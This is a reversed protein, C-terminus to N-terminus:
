AALPFRSITAHSLQFQRRFIRSAEFDGILRFEPVLQRQDTAQQFARESDSFYAHAKPARSGRRSSLQEGAELHLRKPFIIPSQIGEGLIEAVEGSQLRELLAILNETIEQEYAIFSEAVRISSEYFCDVKAKRYAFFLDTLSLESWGALEKVAM